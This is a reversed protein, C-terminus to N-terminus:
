ARGVHMEILDLARQHRRLPDALRLAAILRDRRAVCEPAHAERTGCAGEADRDREALDIGRGECVGVDAHIGGQPGAAGARGRSDLQHVVLDTTSPM